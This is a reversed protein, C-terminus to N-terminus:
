LYGLAMGTQTVGLVKMLMFRLKLMVLNVQSPYILISYAGEMDVITYHVYITILTINEKKSDHM